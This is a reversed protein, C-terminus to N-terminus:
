RELPACASNWPLLKRTVEEYSTSLKRMVDEYRAPSKTTVKAVLFNRSFQERPIIPMDLPPDPLVGRGCVQTLFQINEFSRM